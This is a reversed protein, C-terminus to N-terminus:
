AAHAPAGMHQVGGWWFYTHAYKVLLYNALAWHLDAPAGYNTDTMYPTVRYPEENLLVLGKGRKVQLRVYHRIRQLWDNGCGDGPATTVYPTRADRLQHIWERGPDYEAFGLPLSWLSDCEFPQNVTNSIRPHVTKIARVVAAFATSQADAYVPDNRGGDYQQIWQGGDGYHGVAHSLNFVM